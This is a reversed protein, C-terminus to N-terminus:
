EQRVEVSVFDWWTAQPLGDLNNEVAFYFTYHGAPLATNLIEFPSSLRFLPALACRKVGATWGSPYIYSFWGLGNIGGGVV